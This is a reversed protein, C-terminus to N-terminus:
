YSRYGPQPVGLEDRIEYLWQAVVGPDTDPGYESEYFAGDSHLTRCYWLPESSGEAPECSAFLRGEDYEGIVVCLGHDAFEDLYVSSDEMSDHVATTVEHAKVAWSDSHGLSVEPYSHGPSM